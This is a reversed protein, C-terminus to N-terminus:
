EAQTKQGSQRSRLRSTGIREDERLGPSNHRSLRKLGCLTEKSQQEVPDTVEIKQEVAPELEAQSEEVQSFLGEAGVVEEFDLEVRSPASANGVFENEPEHIEPISSLFLEIGTSLRASSKKPTSTARWPVIEESSTYDLSKGSSSSPIPDMVPASLPSLLPTQTSAFGSPLPPAVSVPVHAAASVRHYWTFICLVLYTIIFIAFLM